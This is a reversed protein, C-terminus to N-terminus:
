KNKHRYVMDSIIHRMGGLFCAVSCIILSFSKVYNNLEYFDMAKLGLVLGVGVFCVTSIMDSTTRKRNKPNQNKM